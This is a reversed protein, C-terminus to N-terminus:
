AQFEQQDEAGLNRSFVENQWLVGCLTLYLTELFLYLDDLAKGNQRAIITSVHKQFSARAIACPGNTASVSDKRRDGDSRNPNRRTRGQTEL